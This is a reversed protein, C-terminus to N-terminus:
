KWEPKEKIKRATLLTFRFVKVKRFVYRGAVLIVDFMFLGVITEYFNEERRNEKM